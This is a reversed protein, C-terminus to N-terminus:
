SLTVGFVEEAYKVVESKYVRFAIISAESAKMAEKGVNKAKEALQQWESHLAESRAKMKALEELTKM